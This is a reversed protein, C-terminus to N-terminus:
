DYSINDLVQIKDSQVAANFLNVLTEGKMRLTPAFANSKLYEVMSRYFQRAEPKDGIADMDAMCILLKGGEVNLEFVLGLKHNREINDIVQVIPKYDSPMKDLIFPYSQKVVPYWQWNTHYETPFNEFLPHEPNILLGLTGPSAPKKIRDCISKFMRYNWYDTQFLGGVTVDACEVKHPMLLVKGGQKLVSLVDETLKRAVIIGDTNLTKNEPYIWLSYRNQYPTGAIKLLLEAKCAKEIEPLTIRIVGADLLGLGPSLNMKGKGLTTNGEKLEWTVNKGDLSGKSYNAIEINGIFTEGGTWCFKETTLLPVVESCFERWKKPEILGKSDMFADLIGVYASGQGPYDQLDLLQFGAMRKSRLNMEIDARYLEVSWAGSAKFFDDAQELMGAKELRERFIEFNWPALAGTYKKMENYNPYTQFQGTEHGIVPVASKELAEDFNMVSNPYTNNLYGGEDADAFSFSARAHMSYGDGSGVRCTVLFDEGPVHGKSGLFINSGYTYLHRPELSRFHDVFEKMVSIDGGLENGLAFLVFSPYNSYQKLINEGDKKLFDMLEASEKKFGGWIPLEPQLYVGELDAAEFCAAPPCWSHFRCHNLGYEKCIRFYRRWEEVNMATHGTLPFVAADHKGRLFTKAGNITFHSGDTKFDSLGFRVITEDIGGIAVRLNYLAPQLDSWLLAKSGLPYTFEYERIGEQLAYETQKVQHKRTTNFASASLQVKKGGIGVAQSLTIKVKVSRDAVQPYTQVSEVFLPNMAQLEMRGIIGNWNTQTSETCAHSSSRIQQPISKGNDVRITIKHVRGATLFRTLDYEQPTSLYNCNGAEKGDIWVSTSRTRELFLVIRKGKWGSPIEIDKSYWAAGEYKYYRSLHTTEAKHTNETGKRNTDTTGPLTVKEPLTVNWFKEQVGKEQPDLAFNWLGSLDMTQRISKTQACLSSLFLFSLLLFGALRCHTVANM